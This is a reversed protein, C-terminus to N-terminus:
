CCNRACVTTHVLSVAVCAQELVVPPPSAVSSSAHLLSLCTGASGELRSVKGFCSGFLARRHLRQLGSLGTGTGQDHLRNISAGGGVHRSAYGDLPSESCYRHVHSFVSHLVRSHRVLPSHMALWGRRLVYVCRSEAGYYRSCAVFSNSGDVRSWECRWELESM